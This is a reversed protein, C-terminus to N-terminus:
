NINQKQKRWVEFKRAEQVIRPVKGLQSSKRSIALQGQFRHIHHYPFSKRRTSDPPRKLDLPRFGSDSRM